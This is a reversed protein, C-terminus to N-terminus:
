HSHKEYTGSIYKKGILYDYLMKSAQLMEPTKGGRCSLQLFQYYWKKELQYGLIFSEHNHDKIFVIKQKEGPTDSFAVIVRKKNEFVEM